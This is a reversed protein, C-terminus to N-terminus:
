CVCISAKSVTMMKVTSGGDLLYNGPEGRIRVYQADGNM